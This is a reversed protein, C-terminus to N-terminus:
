APNHMTAALHEEMFHYVVPLMSDGILINLVRHFQISSRERQGSMEMNRRM